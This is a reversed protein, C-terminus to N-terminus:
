AVSANTPLLDSTVEDMGLHQRAPGVGLLRASQSWERTRALGFDHPTLPEYGEAAPDHTGGWWGANDHQLGNLKALVGSTSGNTMLVIHVENGAAAAAYARVHHAVTQAMFLEVDDQHPELFYTRRPM